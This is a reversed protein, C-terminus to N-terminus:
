SSHLRPGHGARRGSRPASVRGVDRSPSGTTGADNTWARHRRPSGTPEDVQTARGSRAAYGVTAIPGGFGLSGLELFYAILRRFPPPEVTEPQAPQLDATM